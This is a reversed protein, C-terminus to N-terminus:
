RRRDYKLILGILSIYFQRPLSIALTVLTYIDITKSSLVRVGTFIDIIKLISIITLVLSVVLFISFGRKKYFKLICELLLDYMAIMLGIYTVHAIWDVSEQTYRIRILESVGVIIAIDKIHQLISSPTSERKKVM